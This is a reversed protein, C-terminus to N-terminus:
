DDPAVAIDLMAVAFGRAGGAGHPFLSITSNVSFPGTHQATLKPSVPSLTSVMIGAGSCQSDSKENLKISLYNFSCTHMLTLFEFPM